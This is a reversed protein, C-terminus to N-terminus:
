IIQHSAGFIEFRRSDVNYFFIFIIYELVNETNQFM